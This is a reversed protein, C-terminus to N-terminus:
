CWQWQLKREGNETWTKPGMMTSPEQAIAGTSSIHIVRKCQPAHAQIASMLREISHVAPDIILKPDGKQDLEAPAAFNVVADVGVM